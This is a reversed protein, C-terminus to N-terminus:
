RYSKDLTNTQHRWLSCVFLWGAEKGDRSTKKPQINLRKNQQWHQTVKLFDWGTADLFPDQFIEDKGRREVQPHSEHSRESAQV